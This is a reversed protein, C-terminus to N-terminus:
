SRASTNTAIRTLHARTLHARVSARDTKGTTTLPMTEMEVLEHLQMHPPLERRCYTDLDGITAAPTTLVVAAALHPDPGDTTFAVVVADTVMGSGRIETEIETTTVRIGRSKFLEDRRGVYYLYGDTDTRVYDGSYVVTEGVNTAPSTARSSVPDTGPAGAPPHPHPRFVAATSDPDNWYGAAVTPGRHVLQGVTGPPCPQGDDDLVLIETNPIATGISTPRTDVQTPDLYTSRFAETLGYMLYIELRPLAHRIQAITAPALPGGSNTIYRLAPLPLQRIPATHATTGALATWLSPVGALGTVHTGALTRCIDPAFASRQIVVTGGATVTALVQNLGYDFSWPLVAMTRDRSDLHLYDGVIAAGALLNDHTVAVGKATGTSGSTYILGAIDRGIRPVPAPLPAERLTSVDVVAGDPLRLDVRQGTLRSSAHRTTTFVLRADAHDVIHRVQRVRLQDHIFVPITGAFHAGFYVALADISRPLLIAIRDGATTRRAILAACRRARDHLEGYSVQHPGDIVATHGGARAAATLLDAVTYLGPHLSTSM